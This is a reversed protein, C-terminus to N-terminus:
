VWESTRSVETTAEKSQRFVSASCGGTATHIENMLGGSHIARCPRVLGDPGDYVCKTPRRALAEIVNRRCGDGSAYRWANANGRADFANSIVEAPGSELPVQAAGRPHSRFRDWEFFNAYSRSVSREGPSLGVVLDNWSAVLNPRRRKRWTASLVDVVLIRGEADMAEDLNSDTQPFRTSSRGLGLVLVALWTLGSTAGRM